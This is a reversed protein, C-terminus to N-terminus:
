RMSRVAEALLAAPIRVIGEGDPLDVGGDGGVLYGQILLDDGTPPQYITPCGGASCVKAVVRLDHDRGSMEPSDASDIEVTM